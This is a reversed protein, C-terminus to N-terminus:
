PMPFSALCCRKRREEGVQVRASRNWWDRGLLAFFKELEDKTILHMFYSNKMLPELCDAYRMFDILDKRRWADKLLDLREKVEESLDDSFVIRDDLYPFSENELM